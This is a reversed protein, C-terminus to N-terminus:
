LSLNPESIQYKRNTEAVDDLRTDAPVMDVVRLMGLEADPAIDRLGLSNGFTELTATDPFRQSAVEFRTPKLVKVFLETALRTCRIDSM